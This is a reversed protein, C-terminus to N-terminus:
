TSLEKQQQQTSGASFGGSLTSPQPIWAHLRNANILAQVDAQPEHFVVLGYSDSVSSWLVTGRRESILLSGYPNLEGRLTYGIDSQLVRSPTLVETRESFRRAVLETPAGDDGLRVIDYPRYNLFGLLGWSGGLRFADTTTPEGDLAAVQTAHASWSGCTEAVQVTRAVHGLSKWTKYLRM